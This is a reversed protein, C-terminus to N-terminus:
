TPTTRQRPSSSERLLISATLSTAMYDCMYQRLLARNVDDQTPDQEQHLHYIMCANAVPCMYHNGLHVTDLSNVTDNSWGSDHSRLRANGDMGYMWRKAHDPVQRLVATV